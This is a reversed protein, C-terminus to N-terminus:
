CELVEVSADESAIDSYILESEKYEKLLEGMVKDVDAKQILIKVNPGADMTFYAPIGKSRLERVKNIAKISDEEFYIIPPNNSIITAHMQMANHETIEGIKKFDKNKIAEKIAELDKKSHKIYSEYLPSSAMTTKMAQRSSISKKNKNVLVIIMAMDLGPNDIKKAFSSENDHGKEWEVIGGYISRSASGSGRRAMISLDKKNLNTEFLANLATALAAYASASSALGAATPVHNYSEVLVRKDNKSLDRFLDIYKSIKKLEDEGQEQDNLYFKDKKSDIFSVKTETYLADLSLSLSSTNPIILEENEKGWYKILAINANAKAKYKKM